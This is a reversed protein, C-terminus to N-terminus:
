YIINVILGILWILIALVGFPVQVL